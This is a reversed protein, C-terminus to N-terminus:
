ERDEGLVRLRTLLSKCAHLDRLAERAEEIDARAAEVDRQLLDDGVEERGEERTDVDDLTGHEADGPVRVELYRVVGVVQQLGDLALEAPTAESVDHADLHARRCRRLHDGPQLAPETGVLRLDIPDLAWEVQGLEPLEDRDVTRIQLEVGPDGNDRRAERGGLAGERLDEVLHAAPVDEHVLRVPREDRAELHEGLGGHAIRTHDRHLGGDVARALVADEDAREDLTRLLALLRDAEDLELGAEVLQAVDLPRSRQLLSADM